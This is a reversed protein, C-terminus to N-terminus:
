CDSIEDDSKTSDQVYVSATEAKGNSFFSAFALVAMLLIHSDLQYILSIFYDNVHAQFHLLKDTFPM